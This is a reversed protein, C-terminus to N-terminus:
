NMCHMVVCHSTCSMGTLPEANQRIGDAAAHAKMYDLARILQRWTPVPAHTIWYKLIAQVDTRASHPVRLCIGLLDWEGVEEVAKFATQLTLAVAAPPSFTSM